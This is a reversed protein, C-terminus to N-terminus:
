AIPEGPRHESSTLDMRQRSSRVKRLRGGDLEYVWETGMADKFTVRLGYPERQYQGVPIRLESEVGPRLHPELDGVLKSTLLKGSGVDRLDGILTPLFIPHDSTNWASVVLQPGDWEPREVISSWVLFRKAQSQEEKKRDSRLITFGLWFSGATVIGTFWTAVDGWVIHNLWHPLM